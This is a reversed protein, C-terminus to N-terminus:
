VLMKIFGMRPEFIEGERKLISIADDVQEKSIGSKEADSYITSIPVSSGSPLSNIENSIISKVSLVISRQSTSIGVAIRDIDLNGTSKDVGVEGLYAMILDIARKADEPMVYNSLRVKASAEALRIIAELQRASIPIPRLKEDENSVSSRLKLYFENITKMADDSLIPKSKQRAYAIYKRFLDVDIAPKNKDIDKNAELIKEAVMKDVEPNPKDQMIFILDFRNILTPPLDIQAAVVDYPNFRGLKPNAAALVSTQSVLTAHINAKSVAIIQQELASHLASRDDKNMKDLEDICLLGGNTLPMAGAELVFTRSNEDKTVTATLGAASSGMGTVYRAKPAITSVYRLIASKATGPDGVLLIHIDGRFVSAEDQMAKRVGGFLQLVIAEKINDYGFVNPAISDKLKQYILKDQALAKIEDEEKKSISMEEFSQEVSEVYLAEVQLESTSSRKGSPLFIPVEIVVGSVTVKNGPIINREFKPDVLDDKLIVDIQKPQQGGELDEPAEELLIRQTDVLEKDIIKFRGKRGCNSCVLPMKITRETQEVKTIHGCSQCEFSVSKAVPRVTTALKILGTVQILRGLHKSRIENIMLTANDPLDHIRINMKVDKFNPDVEVIVAKLLDISDIPKKLFADGLAPSFEDIEQFDIVLSSKNAAITEKINHILKTSVFRKMLEELEEM